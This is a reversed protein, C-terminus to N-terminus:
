ILTPGAQMGTVSVLRLLSIKSKSGNPASTIKGTEVYYLPSPFILGENESIHVTNLLSNVNLSSKRQTRSLPIKICISM